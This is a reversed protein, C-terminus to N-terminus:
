KRRRLKALLVIRGLQIWWIAKGVFAPVRFSLTYIREGTDEFTAWTAGGPTTERTVAEVHLGM